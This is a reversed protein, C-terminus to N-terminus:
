ATRNIAEEKRQEQALFDVVQEWSAFAVQEGTQICEVSARWHPRGNVQEQWLRLLYSLYPQHIWVRSPPRPQLQSADVDPM